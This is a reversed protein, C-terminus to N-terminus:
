ECVCLVSFSVVIGFCNHTGNFLKRKSRVCVSVYWGFNTIFIGLFANRCGTFILFSSKFFFFFFFLQPLVRTKRMVNNLLVLSFVLSKGKYSFVREHSYVAWRHTFTLLEYTNLRFISFRLFFWHSWFSNVNQVLVYPIGAFKCLIIDLM